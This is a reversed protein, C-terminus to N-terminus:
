PHLSISYQILLNRLNKLLVGDRKLSIPDKKMNMEELTKGWGGSLIASFAPERQAM